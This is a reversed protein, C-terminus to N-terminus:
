RSATGRWTPRPSVARPSSSGRPSANWCPTCPRSWGGRCRVSIALSQQPDDGTVVVRSTALVADSDTLIAALQNALADVSRGDDLAARDAAGPSSAPQASNPRSAPTAPLEVVPLGGHRRLLAALQETTRGVHSGVVILGGGARGSDSTTLQRLENGSLPERRPQGILARPLPPGCRILPRVGAAAAALVAAALLRLDNEDASDAVLVRGPRLGLVAAATAEPDTRLTPLDLLEVEPPDQQPAAVAYRELVWERLQSSRYGFTNDAAYETQGVPLYGSRDGAYHVGSVTIRGADPFAPVLLVGDPPHATDAGVVQALVQTELPFHGRLTSDSRSVFRPRLGLRAGVALARQAVERNVAAAAEPALSRSNTMVYCAPAGQEFAWQLDPETWELLVPLDAVSQTGTPDDDLVVLIEGDAGAARLAAADVRPGDPVDALLEAM